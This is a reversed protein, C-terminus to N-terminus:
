SVKETCMESSKQAALVEIRSRVACGDTRSIFTGFRVAAEGASLGMSLVRSLLGIGDSTTFVCKQWAHTSVVRGSVGKAVVM